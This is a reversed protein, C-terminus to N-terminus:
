FSLRVLSGGLTDAPHGRSQDDDDALGSMTSDARM